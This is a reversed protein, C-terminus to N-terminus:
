CPREELVTLVKRLLDTNIGSGIRLRRNGGLDVELPFEPPERGCGEASEIVRVPVFAQSVPKKRTRRTGKREVAREVALQRRWWTYAHYSIERERCFASHNLGSSRQEAVIGRWYKERVRRAEARLLGKCNPQDKAM